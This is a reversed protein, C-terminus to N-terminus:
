KPMNLNICHVHVKFIETSGREFNNSRSKLQIVETKGEEGYIQLFVKADTGAAFVEGTVVTIEYNIVAIFFCKDTILSIIKQITM